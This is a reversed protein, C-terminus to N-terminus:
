IASINAKTNPYCDWFKWKFAFTFNNYSLM